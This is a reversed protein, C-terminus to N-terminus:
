VAGTTLRDRFFNIVTSHRTRFENCSVDCRHNIYQRTRLAYHMLVVGCTSVPLSHGRAGGRGGVELTRLWASSVAVTFACNIYSQIFAYCLAVPWTNYDLEIIILALPMADLGLRKNRESFVMYISFIRSALINWLRTMFKQFLDGSLSTAVM